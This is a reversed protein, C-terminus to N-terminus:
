APTGCLWEISSDSLESLRRCEASSPVIVGKRWLQVDTLSVRLLEAVRTSSLGAKSLATDLRAGFARLFRSNQANQELHITLSHRGQMLRQVAILVWAAYTLRLVCMHCRVQRIRTDLACGAPVRRERWM